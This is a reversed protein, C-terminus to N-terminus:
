SQLTFRVSFRRTSRIPEGAFTAPAWLTRRAATIASEDLGYGLGKLVRAKEVRGDPGITIALVVVGEVGQNRAGSPYVPSVSRKLQATVSAKNARSSSATNQTPAADFGTPTASALKTTRRPAHAIRDPEGMLSDGVAFRPGGPNTTTGSLTIGLAIPEPPASSPPPPPTAKQPTHRPQSKPQPIPADIEVPKPPPPLEPEAKPLTSVVRMQIVRSEVKVELPPLRSAWGLSGAFLVGGICTGAALVRWRRRNEPELELAFM